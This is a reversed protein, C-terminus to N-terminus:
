WSYGLRLRYTEDLEETGAPAGTNLDWVVEAAGEFGGFLPFSLGLTNQFVLNETEELNWIGKQRYYLRTDEGLINSQIHLDWNASGYSRDEGTIFDEDTYGLGAEAELEFIPDTYFKRGLYPGIASRLNLDAFKDQELSGGVGWYWDGTQKRDYRGRLTWNEANRVGSAEDVEGFAELRIRDRLSEWNSEARFDAEDVNTNGSQRSWAFSARGTFHYGLGLEWPEPNIRTLDALAYSRAAAEELRLREGEVRLGDAEIVEGDGLQLTLDSAVQMAVVEAQDLELTGAFGTEVVLKGGDADTLTGYIISGDRMEFRDAACVGASLILLCPALLARLAASFM